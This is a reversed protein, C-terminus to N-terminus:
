KSRAKALVRMFDEIFVDGQEPTFVGCATDGEDRLLLTVYREDDAAAASLRYGGEAEISREIADAADVRAMVSSISPPADLPVPVATAALPKWSRLHGVLASVIVATGAPDTKELEILLELNIRMARLLQEARPSM